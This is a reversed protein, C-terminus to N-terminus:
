VEFYSYFADITKGDEMIFCDAKPLILLSEKVTRDVNYLSVHSVVCKQESIENNFMGIRQSSPYKVFGALDRVIEKTNFHSIHDASYVTTAKDGELDFTIVKLTLM